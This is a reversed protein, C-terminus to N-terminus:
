KSISCGGCSILKNRLWVLSVVIRNTSHNLVVILEYFISVVAPALPLFDAVLVRRWWVVVCRGGGGRVM